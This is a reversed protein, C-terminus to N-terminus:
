LAITPIGLKEEEEELIIIRPTVMLMLSSTTRGIGINRFLRNIYPTKALIPVGYELREENLRKVGGLLVTGGDPVTVTTSTTTISFHPQNFTANIPVGTGGLGTGGVAAPVSISTFSILATFQPSLTMRVYRRDASVVPTVFLQVGNPFSAMQPFFAVAGPGVIPILSAVYPLQETNIISAQAGNFTTVKPAQLINSRTDGQAATLFLYVELDSLFAIGFTGGAGPQAESPVALAASGQNFPIQLNPSFAGIGPANTGVVLPKNGISYDLFPNVIYPRPPRTAPAAAAGGRGGGGPVM